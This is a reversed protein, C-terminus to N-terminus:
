IKRKHSLLGPIKATRGQSEVAEAMGHWAVVSNSFVYTHVYVRVTNRSSPQSDFFSHFLETFRVGSLNLSSERANFHFSNVIITIKGDASYQAGTKKGVYRGSSSSDSANGM